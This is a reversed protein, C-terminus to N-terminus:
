KILMGQGTPLELVSYGREGFWADEAVKQARYALWGYDDLILIAGPLMREFLIELAGIEAEASNLDLHLFSIKQPAISSLIEPVRGQTVFVNSYAEFRRRVDEFLTESHAPMAHHSDTPKHEFLDYLYYKRSKINGFDFYECLIRASTGRYCACEVFDGEPLRLGQKAAWVLVSVRWLLSKEINGEAHRRHSDVLKVDELFSLNKNYTFLNDGAFIGAQLKISDVIAQLGDKFAGKDKVEYFAGPLYSLSKEPLQRKDEFL